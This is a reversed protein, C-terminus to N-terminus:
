RPTLDDESVEGSVSETSFTEEVDGTIEHWSVIAGTPADFCITTEQGFRHGLGAAGDAVLLYCGPSDVYVLYPHREFSAALERVEDEQTPARSRSGCNAAGDATVECTQQQGGATVVATPGWQELRRDGDRTHRVTTVETQDGVVREIQGVVAYPGQRSREWAGLFDGLDVEDRIPLTSPAVVPTDATRTPFLFFSAAVALLVGVVVAAGIELVRRSM